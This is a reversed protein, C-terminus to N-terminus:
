SNVNVIHCPTLPGLRDRERSAHLEPLGVLADTGAIIGGSNGV